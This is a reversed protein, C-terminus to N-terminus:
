FNWKVAITPMVEFDGDFTFFNRSIEVESGISIHKTIAYWLQPETLFVVDKGSGTFKDMSWIDMFGTFLIKSKFLPQYWVFTIQGDASKAGYNARYLLSANITVSGLKIPYSLGGLWAKTIYIPTGDNYEIQLSLGSKKHLTFKRSIEFYAMSAGGNPKDYDVDVFMFTSGVSDPKFYEFTSTFYERNMPTSHDKAKGFDYHLQLNQASLFMSSFILITLIYYKM